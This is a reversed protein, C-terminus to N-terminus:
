LPMQRHRSDRLTGPEQSPRSRAPRSDGELIKPHKGPKRLGKEILKGHDTMVEGRISRDKGSLNVGPEVFPCDFGVQIRRHSGKGVHIDARIGSPTVWLM